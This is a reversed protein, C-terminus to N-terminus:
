EKFKPLEIEQNRKILKIRLTDINEEYTYVLFMIQYENLNEKYGLCSYDMILNSKSQTAINNKFWTYDYESQFIFGNKIFNYLQDYAAKRKAKFDLNINILTNKM